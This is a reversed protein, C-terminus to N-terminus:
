SCVVTNSGAVLYSGSFNFQESSSNTLQGLTNGNIKCTIVFDVPTTHTIEIIANGSYPETLTFTYNTPVTKSTDNYVSINQLKNVSIVETIPYSLITGTIGDSSFVENLDKSNTDEINTVAQVGVALIIFIVIISVLPLLLNNRLIDQIQM